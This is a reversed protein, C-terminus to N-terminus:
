AGSRFRASLAKLSRHVGVKVAGESQGTARATEAVSAGGLKMMVLAQRQREPLVQLMRELDRRAELAQSDSHAFIEAEEDLPDNLAEHRSRARLYDVLKYRAITHVWATLPQSSRWTHRSHHVALLTEQVLDEVDDPWQALRRRLFARLHASLAALFQHYAAGDGALAAVFQAHLREETATARHSSEMRHARGASAAPLASAMTGPHM